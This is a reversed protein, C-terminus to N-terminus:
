FQELLAPDLSVSTIKLGAADMRKDLHQIKILLEDMTITNDDLQYLQKSGQYQFNLAIMATHDNAEVRAEIGRQRRHIKNLIQKLDWVYVVEYLFPHERLKGMVSVMITVAVAVGALNHWFHAADATSFLRIFLTSAALSIVLLAIAIGAFVIKLHRSYRAKDIEKLQM